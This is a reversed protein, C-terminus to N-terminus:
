QVGAASIGLGSICVSVACVQVRSVAFSHLQPFNVEAFGFFSEVLILCTQLKGGCHGHLFLNEAFSFSFIM